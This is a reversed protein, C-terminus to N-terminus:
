TVAIDRHKVQVINSRTKGAFLSAIKEAVFVSRHKGGTCGFAVTIITRGDRKFEGVLYKLYAATKKVFTGTGQSKAIFRQVALNLGTHNKLEPVFFPNKLSRVDIVVDAEFPTGHKFGFSMVNLEFLKLENRLFYKHVAAKLTHVNLHTTNITLRAQQRLPELLKKEATYGEQISGTLSLPHKLRSEKYRRIISNLDSEFFIVEVSCRSKLKKLVTDINTMFDRGRADIVLAVKHINTSKLILKFFDPILKAPLNDVCYYGLEEIYRLATTKGSGSYGTLIYLKKKM